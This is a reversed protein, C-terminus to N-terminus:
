LCESYVCVCVGMAVGVVYAGNYFSCVFACVFLFRVSMCAFACFFLCVLVCFVYTWMLAIVSLMGQADGGSTLVAVSKGSGEVEVFSERRARGRSAVNRTFYTDPPQDRVSKRPSLRTRSSPSRWDPCVPSMRRGVDTSDQAAKSGSIAPRKNSKRFRRIIYSFLNLVFWFM